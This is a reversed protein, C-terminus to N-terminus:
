KIKIEFIKEKDIFGELFDGIKVKGVGEPTGTFMIDGIKITFYKSVYNILETIKWIMKSSNSKQVIKGNKKLSFNINNLDIKDDYPIWEGILASNDFSKSIEWPLGKLKLDNQLDRATFDIGLSFHSIYKLCFDKDIHKGVKSFKLILELEYHIQNSFEPIFFPQNKQIVSSDPKMFITPNDDFSGNLEKIHKVYNKGICIIKM